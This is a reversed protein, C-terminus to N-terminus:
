DETPFNAGTTTDRRTLGFGEPNGLLCSLHRGTGKQPPPMHNKISAVTRKILTTMKFDYFTKRVKKSIFAKKM